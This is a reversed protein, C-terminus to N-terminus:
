QEGAGYRCEQVNRRYWVFEARQGDAFMVLVLVGDAYDPDSEYRHALSRWDLTYQGENQEMAARLFQWCDEDLPSARSATLTPESPRRQAVQLIREVRELAYTEPHTAYGIIGSATFYGSVCCLLLLVILGALMRRPRFSMDELGGTFMAVM